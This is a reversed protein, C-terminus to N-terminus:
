FMPRRTDTRPSVPVLSGASTEGSTAVFLPYTNARPKPRAPKVPYTPGAPTLRALVAGVKKRYTAAHVETRSHYAGIAASWDGFEEYLSRLFRAAYDANLAPDLMDAYSSFQQGHWQYNIQFCGVDFNTQGALVLNRVKTLADARSDFRQAVGNVNLSWAWATLYTKHARGTEVESVARLLDVPIDHTAAAHRAALDCINDGPDAQDNGTSARAQDTAWFMALAVVVLAACHLTGPLLGSRTPSIM